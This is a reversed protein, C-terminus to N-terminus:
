YEVKSLDRAKDPIVKGTPSESEIEYQVVNRDGMDGKRGFECM